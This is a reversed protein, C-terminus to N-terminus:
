RVAGRCNLVVAGFVEDDVLILLYSHNVHIWHRLWAGGGPWLFFFSIFFSSFFYSFSHFFSLSLCATLIHTSCATSFKIKLWKIFFFQNISIGGSKM